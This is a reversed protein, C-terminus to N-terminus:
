WSDGGRNHGVPADRYPNDDYDRSSSGKNLGLCGYLCLALFGLMIFLGIYDGFTKKEAQPM